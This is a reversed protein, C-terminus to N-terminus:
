KIEVKVKVAKYIYKSEDLDLVLSVQHTGKGLDTVDITGNLSSNTLSNVDTELGSITVAVSELAFEIKGGTPLGTVTIDETKLNFTKEKIKGIGVAVEVSATEADVLTVGEPIYETIDITTTISSEARSVSIVGEPITIESITNLLAKSGRLKVTGPNCTISTVGYGTAPTGTTKVMIPVDKVNLIEASVNVTEDSFTLRTTDIEKGDKDFLLPTTRYTTWTDSMGTVDITAIVSSIDEVISKPGSIRLVNPATVEVQGLAYGEAVEGFASATVVFQKTMLDELEVKLTKTTSSLRVSNSNVNGTCTIEIPVAGESEDDSLTLYEMNATATFDSEDLKDLVSRAATVSFSVKNTGDKIEYYKGLSEVYEKNAVTVNITLTKSKTPDEINYVTLWLTFAFIVALIKFGLNHSLTKLINNKM